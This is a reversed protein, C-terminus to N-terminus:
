SRGFGNHDFSISNPNPSTSKIQEKLEDRHENTCAGLADYSSGIDFGVTMQSPLGCPRQDQTKEDPVYTACGEGFSVISFAINGANGPGFQDRSPLVESSSIDAQISQEITLTYASSDIEISM